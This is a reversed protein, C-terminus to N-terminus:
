AAAEEGAFEIKTITKRTNDLMPSWEEMQRAMHNAIKSLEIRHESELGSKLTDENTLFTRLKENTLVGKLQKLLKFAEEKTIAKAAEAKKKDEVAKRIERVTWGKEVADQGLKLRAAKEPLKAAELLAHFSMESCDIGEKEYEANQVAARVCRGLEKPDMKLKKHDCVEKYSNEKKPSKSRAKEGDGGYCHTLVLTGIRMKSKVQGNEYEENIAEVLDDTNMRTDEGSADNEGDSFTEENATEDEPREDTGETEEETSEHDYAEEHADSTHEEGMEENWGNDNAEYASQM